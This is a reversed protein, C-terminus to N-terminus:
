FLNIVDVIMNSIPRVLIINEKEEYEDDKRILKIEMTCILTIMIKCLWKIMLMRKM